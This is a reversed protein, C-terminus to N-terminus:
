SRAVGNTVWEREFEDEDDSETHTSLSDAGRIHINNSAKASSDHSPNSPVRRFPSFTLAQRTTPKNHGQVFLISKPHRRRFITERNKDGVDLKHICEDLTDAVSYHLKIM